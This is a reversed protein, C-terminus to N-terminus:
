KRQGSRALCWRKRLCARGLEALLFGRKVFVKHRLNYREFSNVGIIHGNTDRVGTDAVLIGLPNAKSAYCFPNEDLNVNVSKDHPRASKPFSRLPGRIPM